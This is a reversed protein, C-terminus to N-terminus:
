GGPQQASAAVGDVDTGALASTLASHIRTYMAPQEDAPASELADLDAEASALPDVAASRPDM